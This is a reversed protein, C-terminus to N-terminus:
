SPPTKKLFCPKFKYLLALDSSISAKFAGSILLNEFCRYISFLPVFSSNHDFNHDFLCEPISFVRSFAINEPTKPKTRSVPSSGAHAYQESSGSDMCMMSLIYLFLFKAGSESQVSIQVSSRVSKGKLDVLFKQKEWEFDLHRKQGNYVDKNTELFNGKALSEDNMRGMILASNKRDPM